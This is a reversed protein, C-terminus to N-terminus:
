LTCPINVASVISTINYLEYNDIYAIKGTSSVDVNNFTFFSTSPTAGVTFTKDILVWNNNQPVSYSYNPSTGNALFAFTGDVAKVMARFRYTNNAVWTINAVDLAAGTPYVSNQATFKVCNKGCYAEGSVVNKYGWGGFGTLTNMTPSPILNTLTSYLPTFCDSNKTAVVSVNNITTGSTLVINGSVNSTTGNYTVTVTVNNASGMPISTPSVTIGAPSTITINSTLNGGNVVLTESTNLDDMILASQNSTISPAVTGTVQLSDKVSGSNFYVYGSTSGPGTFTVTLSDTTAGSVTKLMTTPSVSYGTPATISINSSLSEARVAIKKASLGLFTLSASSPYVKPVSYMEWNDIYSGAANNFFLGQTGGLTAGTTVTMQLAVWSNTITPHVVFDPQGNSWGYLGLNVATNSAKVMAKVLYKTNTKLTGTLVRDISGGSIVGSTKGCYVITTDTTLGTAGWGGFTSLSNLYPDAILNTADPYFQSFCDTNKRALVRIRTTATTSTLTIYGSSNAAGDYTVTVSAATANSPLTNPSLTIGAPATMTIGTTLNGGTVTFTSGTNLEDMSVFTVSTTLAPAVTGTVQMSDKVTGSTFYVYGTKSGPGAFTVTLSDTTAGSVTKLMSAPSVTFGTSATITIDSSLSEARVAVKKTGLGLFTLSAASPYTKPVAYLEYNDIYCTDTLAPTNATCSNFYMGKTGGLTAGNVFTTDLQKWGNSNPLYFYISTAGNGGEVQIQFKTGTGAKSNYMARLRYKTLTKFTALSRDITGGNLYCTGRVFASKGNCYAASNTVIGPVGTVGWGGYGGKVLTTSDFGPDLIMNGSPYAPTYCQAQIQSLAAAIIVAILLFTTKKM